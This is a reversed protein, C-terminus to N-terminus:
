DRIFRKRRMMDLNDRASLSGHEAAKRFWREAEGYDQRVGQGSLYLGGLEKQAAAHNEATALQRWLEAAKTFNQPVGLGTAFLIGLYFRAEPEYAAAALLWTAAMRFDPPFEEGKFYMMAVKYGIQYGRASVGFWKEAEAPNRAVGKGKAYRMGLEFQAVCHGKESASKIWTFAERDDRPVGHGAAYLSGLEYQCNGDGQEAGKRFWKEAEKFDVPLVWGSAYELGLLYQGPPYGQEAALRYWGIADLREQDTRAFKRSKEGIMVEINPIGIWYLIGGLLVLFLLLRKFAKM